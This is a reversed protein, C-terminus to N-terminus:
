PVRRMKRLAAPFSLGREQWVLGTVAGLIIVVGIALISSLLDFVIGMPGYRDDSSIVMGPFTAAFVAVMGLWCLGSAVACPFLRRWAVRGGLLFRM